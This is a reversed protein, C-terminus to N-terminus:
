RKSYARSLFLTTYRFPLDVCVVCKIHPSDRGDEFVVHLTETGWVRCNGRNVKGSTLFTAEDSFAVRKLFESDGDTRSYFIM